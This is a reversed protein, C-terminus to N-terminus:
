ECVCECTATGMFVTVTVNIESTTPASTELTVTAFTDSENCYYVSNSFFM